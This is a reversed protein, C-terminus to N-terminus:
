AIEVSAIGSCFVRMNRLKKAAALLNALAEVFVPEGALVKTHNAGFEKMSLKGDAAAISAEYDISRM